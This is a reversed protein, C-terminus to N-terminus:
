DSRWTLLPSRYGLERLRALLPEVQPEPVEAIVIRRYAGAVEITAAIGSLRLRELTDAANAAERFSAVQIRCSRAPPPASGSAGALRAGPSGFSAAEEPPLVRCRVPGTGSAVLGILRAAAESLDVV